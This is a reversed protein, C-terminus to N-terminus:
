WLFMRKVDAFTTPAVRVVYGLEEVPFVLNNPSQVKSFIWSADWLTVEGEGTVDAAKFDIGEPGRRGQLYDKLMEYDAMTVEGDSNVDGYLFSVGANACVAILLTLLLRM